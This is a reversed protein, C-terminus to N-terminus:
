RKRALIAMFLPFEDRARNEMNAAKGVSVKPSIWEEIKEIVFGNEALGNIYDQLPYHYSWTLKTSKTSNSGPNMNIPIKLFSLYRDIRRYQIQKSEDIEWSSQRPIRFYPHNLVILFKGDKQLYNKVNQFVKRFNEVNQLALIITAHSFDKKEISLNETIDAIDFKAFKNQNEKRASNILDSSLDIGQYILNKPLYKTLIGQGCGLDLLSDDSKLDLLKLSKPMIVTQHFYLGSEGVATKYWKSVGQWSTDTKRNKFFQRKM